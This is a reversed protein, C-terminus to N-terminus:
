NTGAMGFIFAGSVLFGEFTHKLNVSFWLKSTMQELSQCKLKLWTVM